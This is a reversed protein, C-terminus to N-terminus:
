QNQNEPPTPSALISDLRALNHIMDMITDFRVESKTVEWIYKSIQPDKIVKRAVTVLEVLTPPVQDTEQLTAHKLHYVPENKSAM